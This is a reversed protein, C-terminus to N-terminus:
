HNVGQGHQECGCKGLGILGRVDLGAVCLSVLRQLPSRTPPPRDRSVDNRGQILECSGPVKGHQDEVLHIRLNLMTLNCHQPWRQCSLRPIITKVSANNHVAVPQGTIRTLATSDSPRPKRAHQSKAPRYVRPHVFYHRKRNVLDTM